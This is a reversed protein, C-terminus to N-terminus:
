EKREWAAIEARLFEEPGPARLHNVCQRLAGRARDREATVTALQSEAQICREYTAMEREVARSGNGIIITMSEELRANEATLTAVQAELKAREQQIDARQKVLEDVRDIFQALQATLTAVAEALKTLVADVRDAEVGGCEIFVAKTILARVRQVDALLDPLISAPVFRDGDRGIVGTMKVTVRVDASLPASVTQKIEM